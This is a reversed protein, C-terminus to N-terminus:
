HYSSKQRTDLRQKQKCGKNEDDTDKNTSDKFHTKLKILRFFNNLDSDLKSKNYVKM